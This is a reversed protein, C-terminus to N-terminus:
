NKGLELGLQEIFQSLNQFCKELFPVVEMQKGHFQIKNNDIIYTQGSVHKIITRGDPYMTVDDQIVGNVRNGELIVKTGSGVNVFPMGGQYITKSKINDTKSLRNHKADNTITCLDVLWSDGSKFPQIGVLLTYVLPMCDDLHPLNKKMSNNFHNERQGYPFYVKEPIKNSTLTKLKSQIDQAAYDLVSRLNELTNKLAVKNIAGSEAQKCINSIEHRSHELLDRIDQNYM